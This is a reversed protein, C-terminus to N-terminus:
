AYEYKVYTKCDGKIEECWPAGPCFSIKGIDFSFDVPLIPKGTNDSTDNYDTKASEENWRGETVKWLAMEGLIGSNGVIQIGDSSQKLVNPLQISKSHQGNVYIDVTRGEFAIAIHFWRQQVISPIYIAATKNADGTLVNSFELLLHEQSPVYSALLAPQTKRIPDYIGWRWIAQPNTRQETSGSIYLYHVLTFSGQTVTTLQDSRIVIPFEKPSFKWPGPNSQVNKRQYYIVLLFIMGIVFVATMVYGAIDSPSTNAIIPLQPVDNSPRYNYNYAARGRPQTGFFGATSNLLDM